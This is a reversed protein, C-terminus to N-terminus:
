SATHGRPGEEGRTRGIVGQVVVMVGLVGVVGVGLVGVVVVVGGVVERRHAVVGHAGAEGITRLERGNRYRDILHNIRQRVVVRGRRVSGGTEVGTPAVDGVWQVRRTDERM